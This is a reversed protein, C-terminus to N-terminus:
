DNKVFPCKRGPSQMGDCRKGPVLGDKISCSSYTVNGADDYRTVVDVLIKNYKYCSFKRFEERM